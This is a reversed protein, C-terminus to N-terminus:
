SKGPVIAEKAAEPTLDGRAPDGDLTTLKLCSGREPRNGATGKNLFPSTELIKQKAKQRGLPSPIFFVGQRQTIKKWKPKEESDKGQNRAL